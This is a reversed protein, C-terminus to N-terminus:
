EGFTELINGLFSKRRRPQGDRPDRRDDDRRDDDRRDGGFRDDDWDDPRRDRRAADRQPDGGRDAPPPGPAAAPPPAPREQRGYHAAEADMLRELEGRDLFVGRCEACQDVHIGSREYTRMEAGCKPCILATVTM